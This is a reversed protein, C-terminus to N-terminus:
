DDLGALEAASFLRLFRRSYEPTFGIGCAINIQQFKPPPNEYEVECGGRTGWSSGEPSAKTWRERVVDALLSEWEARRDPMRAAQELALFPTALACANSPRQDVPLSGQAARERACGSEFARSGPGLSKALQSAIWAHNAEARPRLRRDLREPDFEITREGPPAAYIDEVPFSGELAAIPQEGPVFLVAHVRALDLGCDKLESTTACALECAALWALEDDRGHMLFLGLHEGLRLRRAQDDSVHLVLRPREGLEVPAVASSGTRACAAFWGPIAFM